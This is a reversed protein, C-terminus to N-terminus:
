AQNILWDKLAKEAVESLKGYPKEPYKRTVFQRLKKETEDTLTLTIKGMDIAIITTYFIIKVVQRCTMSKILLSYM